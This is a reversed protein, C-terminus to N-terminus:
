LQPPRFHLTRVRNTQRRSNQVYLPDRHPRDHAVHYARTIGLTAVIRITHNHRSRRLGGGAVEHPVQVSQIRRRDAEGHRNSRAAEKYRHLNQSRAPRETDEAPRAQLLGREGRAGVAPARAAVPEARPASRYVCVPNGHRGVSAKPQEHVLHATKTGQAAAEQPSRAAGAADPQLLAARDARLGAAARHQRGPHM